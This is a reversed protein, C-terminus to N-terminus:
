ILSSLDKKETIDEMALLILETEMGQRYIRRANLLLKRRGIDPFDHEVEFGEFVSSKPLIKQLLTKLSPIDWQNNGLEYILRGESEEPATKFTQYFAKNAKIVQLDKNLVILPERVTQVIGEYVIAERLEDQMKKQETTDVFTVVVGEIINNQTRYPLMRMLYWRSSQHRVVREKLALTRLVEAADNIMDPYELKPVIDAVPRGIDSKILNIIETVSPTFGKIRLDNNLFITAIQTSAMLNIIDNNANSLEENKAELEANVTSLEENVSQLEERSTELEENSSQLEENSSQLEENMSKLEENSAEIEEISSLLHERTSKLEYELDSIHQRTGASTGAKLSLPKGKGAHPAERFIILLLGELHEPKKIHKIELKITHFGGNTKVQIGEAVVDKKRSVARRFFSMLELKLGERAMDLVNLAAKGAAPELYRGTKGHIYLIDGKENVVVCSPSYNEVLFKETAAGIGMEVRQKVKEVALIEKQEKERTKPLRLDMAALPVAGTKRARFIKWKNAAVSFMDSSNGINESPGLFLVGSPNLAYHFLPMIKKQLEAGMYILVNRCSLLDLKLFPPDKIVNHVAFVVIERIENKIKYSNETKIFFNELREPSVDVTINAPYIGARAIEIAGKDIDTAFIQLQFHKGSKKMSELLIIAISYAEEGTSCGPVWVRVPLEASRAMLMQPLIENKLHEFAEPDRFFNTVRILLEKFLTDIEHPNDRLYNIYERTNEFQHIALRKEVRRMITSKKYLFFDNGTRSRILGIIKQLDGATNNETEAVGAIPTRKLYEQLYGPMKEPPLVQDVLGTGIASSPMGDYESTKPDQALVLGGEGKVARLGLAGETGTGSLIICVAKERIDEALSRFFFDIPHKVGRQEAPKFLQLAGHMISMDRNPPIVYIHNPLVKMGDAAESIEMTTYRGLLETMLSKHTPDLHSVLVFAMGSDIPMNRFFLEFAKLGGASAGIGVVHLGERLIKREKNAPLVTRSVGATVPSVKQPGNNKKELKKKKLIKKAM